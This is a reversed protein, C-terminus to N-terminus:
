TPTPESTTSSTKRKKGSKTTTTIFTPLLKISRQSGNESIDDTNSLLEFVDTMTKKTYYIARIITKMKLLFDTATSPYHYYRPPRNVRSVYGRPCDMVIPLMNLGSIVIGCTKIMRLQSPYEQVIEYQMDKLNKPLKIGAEFITKTNNVDSMKGAEVTGFELDETTFLLDIKTGIKRRSMAALSRDINIRNSSAKSVYEGSIVDLDGYDFCCDIISWVRKMLDAETKYTKHLNYTLIELVNRVSSHVWYLESDDIPDINHKKYEDWLSRLSKLNKYNDLYNTMNDPLKSIPVKKEDEIEHLEEKTFYDLWVPDSTDLIMSHCPHENKLKMALEKIKQEVVTGTSLPWFKTHDLTEFMANFKQYDDDKLTPTTNNTPTPTPTSTTVPEISTAGIPTPHSSLQQVPPHNSIYEFYAVKLIDWDVNTSKAKTFHGNWITQFDESPNMKSAIFERNDKIFKELTLPHNTTDLVYQEVVEETNDM